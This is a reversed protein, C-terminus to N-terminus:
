SHNPDLQLNKCDNRLEKDTEFNLKSALERLDLRFNFNKSEKVYEDITVEGSMMKATLKEVYLEHCRREDIIQDHKKDPKNFVSLISM